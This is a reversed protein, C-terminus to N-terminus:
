YSDYNELLYDNFSVIRTTQIDFAFPTNILATYYTNECYLPSVNYLCTDWDSWHLENPDGQQWYFPVKACKQLHSLIELSAHNRKAIQYLQRMDDASKVIFCKSHGDADLLLFSGSLETLYYEAIQYENCIHKFFSAFKPEHLWSNFPQNFTKLIQYSIDVFYRRQLININEELLNVLNPDDRRLYCDIIGRNFAQMALKEFVKPVVIIKKISPDQIRKCFQVGDMGVMVFDVVVVSIDNFRLPNYVEHHLMSIKWNTIANDEDQAIQHVVSKPANIQTLLSSNEHIATPTYVQEIAKFALYPLKIVQCCLSPELQISLNALFGFPNDVIIVKTPYYCIPQM